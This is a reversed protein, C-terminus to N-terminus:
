TRRARKRNQYGPDPPQSVRSFLSLFLLIKRSVSKCLHPRQPGNSKRELMASALPNEDFRAKYKIDIMLYTQPRLQRGDNNTFSRREDVQKTRSGDKTPDDWCVDGIMDAMEIHKGGARQKSSAGHKTEPKWEVVVGGM